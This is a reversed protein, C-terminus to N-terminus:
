QDDLGLSRVLLDRTRYPPWGRRPVCTVCEPEQGCGFACLRDGIRRYYPCAGLNVLPWYGLRDLQERRNRWYWAPM